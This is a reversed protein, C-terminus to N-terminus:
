RVQFIKEYGGNTSSYGLTDYFAICGVLWDGTASHMPITVTSTFTALKNDGSIKVWTSDIRTGAVQTTKFWYPSPLRTLDIGTEDAVTITAVIVQSTSSVDLITKDVTIASVTPGNTDYAVANVTVTSTASNIKGDNVILSAIYTGVVDATFTPRIATSSSLQAASGAPKTTLTWSYTLVNGDADTSGSGDLTVVANSLVNQNSGANAVPAVNSGTSGGGGGGCAAVLTLSIAALAYKLAKMNEKRTQQLLDNGWM